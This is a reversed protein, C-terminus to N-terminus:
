TSFAQFIRRRAAKWIWWFIMVQGVGDKKSWTGRSGWMSVADLIHFWRECLVLELDDEVFEEAEVWGTRVQCVTGEASAPSAKMLLHLRHRFGCWHGSLEGEFGVEGDSNVVSWLQAWCVAENGAEGEAYAAEASVVMGGRVAGLFSGQGDGWM